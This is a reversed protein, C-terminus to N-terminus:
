KKAELHIKKLVKRETNPYNFTVDEFTLATRVGDFEKKGADREKDMAYLLEMKEYGSIHILTEQFKQFLTFIPGYIKETFGFFFFLTGLTLTGQTM